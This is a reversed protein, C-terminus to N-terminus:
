QASAPPPRPPGAASLLRRRESGARPCPFRRRQRLATFAALSGQIRHIRDGPLRERHLLLRAGAPLRAGAVPFSRATRFEIQVPPPAPRQEPSSAAPPVSAVAPEQFSPEPPAASLRIQGAPTSRRPARAAKAM